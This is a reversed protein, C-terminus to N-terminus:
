HDFDETLRDALVGTRCDAHGFQGEVDRDLDFHDELDLLRDSGSLGPACPLSWRSFPLRVSHAAATLASDHCRNVDRLGTNEM